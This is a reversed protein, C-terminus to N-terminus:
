VKETEEPKEEEDSSDTVSEGSSERIIFIYIYM